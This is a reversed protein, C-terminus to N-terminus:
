AGLPRGKWGQVKGPGFCIGEGRFPTGPKERPFSGPLEPVSTGGARARDGATWSRLWAQSPISLAAPVSLAGRLRCKTVLRPNPKFDEQLVDGCGRASGEEDGLGQLFGGALLALGEQGGTGTCVKWSFCLCCSGSVEALWVPGVNVTALALILENCGM